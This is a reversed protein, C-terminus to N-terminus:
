TNQELHKTCNLCHIKHSKDEYIEFESVATNKQGEQEYIADAPKGMIISLIALNIAGHGVFVVTSNSYKEFAKDLISRAREQMHEASEADDPYKEYQIEDHSRGTWSGHDRERLKEVFYVPVTPHCKAIEKATDAARALDSSYIAAIDEEKLREALKRAEEIGKESLKGPLHGQTIQMRNEITEGHRTLIVRMSNNLLLYNIFTAGSSM